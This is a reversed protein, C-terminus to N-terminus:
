DLFEIREATCPTLLQGVREPDYTINVLRVRGGPERRGLGRAEKIRTAGGCIEMWDSDRGEALIAYSGRAGAGRFEGEVDPISPATQAAEAADVLSNCPDVYRHDIGPRTREDYDLGSGVIRRTIGEVAGRCQRACDDAGISECHAAKAELDAILIDVAREEAGAASALLFLCFSAITRAWSTTM